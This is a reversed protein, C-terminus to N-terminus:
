EDDLVAEVISEANAWGFSVSVIPKKDKRFKSISLHSYMQRIKVDATAGHPRETMNLIVTNRVTAAAPRKASARMEVRVFGCDTNTNTVRQSGDGLVLQRSDIQTSKRLRKPREPSSVVFQIADTEDRMAYIKVKTPAEAVEVLPLETEELIYVEDDKKDVKAKKPDVLISQVRIAAKGDGKDVLTMVKLTQLGGSLSFANKQSRRGDSFCISPGDEDKQRLTYGDIKVGPLRKRLKDKKVESAKPLETQLLEDINGTPLAAYDVTLAEAVCVMTMFALAAAIPVFRM